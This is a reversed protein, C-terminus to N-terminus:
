ARTTEAETGHTDLNHLDRLSLMETVESYTHSHGNGTGICIGVAEDLSPYM